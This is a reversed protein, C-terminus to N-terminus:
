YAGHRRADMEARQRKVEQDLRWRTACVPCLPRSGCLSRRLVKEGCEACPEFLAQRVHLALHRSRARLDTAIERM